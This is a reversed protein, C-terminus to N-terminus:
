SLLMTILIVSGTCLLCVVLLKLGVPMTQLRESLGTRKDTM